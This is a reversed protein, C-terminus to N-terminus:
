WYRWPEGEVTSLRVELEPLAAELARALSPLSVRETAGHGADIVALGLARAELAQHYKLDGTVLVEARKKQAAKLLTGGSGGCVAVRRVPRALDGVLRVPSVGLAEKVRGAFDGLTMASALNGVAGLGAGAPRNALPYVDFAVEEYPHARRLAQLVRALRYRPLLMELRFEEVHELQGESGIFPSAGPLPKFTGTGATQFSCHSYAGIVGAGAEALAQRVQDEYGRPVFTVLKYFFGEEAEALPEVESLGLARALCANVGAPARDWNTHLVYVALGRRVLAAALAADPRDEELSTLPRGLPPHHTVLMQAGQQAAEEVVAPTVDLCLLLRDVAQDARGFQLGIRDGEEALAPPALEELVAIIEGCTKSM